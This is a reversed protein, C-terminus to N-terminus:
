FSVSALAGAQGTRPIVMPSLSIRYHSENEYDRLQVGRVIANITRVVSFIGSAGAGITLVNFDAPPTSTNRAFFVNAAVDLVIAAVGFGIAQHKASYYYDTKSELEENYNAPIAELPLERVPIGQPYSFEYGSKVTPEFPLAPLATTPQTAGFETQNIAASDSNQASTISASDPNQTSAISASDPNQTSAIAASDPNQTSAISASDSNQTSAISASDSNQASAIAALTLGLAIVISTKFM